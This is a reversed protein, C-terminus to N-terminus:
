GNEITKDLNYLEEVRKIDKIREDAVRGSYKNYLYELDENDLEFINTGNYDWSKTFAPCSNEMNVSFVVRDRTDSLSFKKPIEKIDKDNVLKLKYGKCFDRYDGM